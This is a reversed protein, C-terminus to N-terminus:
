INHTASGAQSHSKGSACFLFPVLTTWITADFGKKMYLQNWIYWNWFQFQNFETKGEAMTVNVICYQHLDFNVKM